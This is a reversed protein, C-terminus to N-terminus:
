KPDYVGTEMVIPNRAKERSNWGAGANSKPPSWVAKKQEPTLKKQRKRPKKM